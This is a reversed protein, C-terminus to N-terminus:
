VLTAMFKVQEGSYNHVLHHCNHCLWTLNDVRNNKRNRDIHHVALVRKDQIKCTGCVAPVGHRTLVSKYAEKGHVWNAHKPGVFLANRWRTQCSKGCFLKKSKSQKFAKPPKYVEKSCLFCKVVRGKRLGKHHCITSCYKGGGTRVFYPKTSFQKGCIKCKRQVAM